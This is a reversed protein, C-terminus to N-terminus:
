QGILYNSTLCVGLQAGVLFMCLALLLAGLFAVRIPVWPCMFAIVVVSWFSGVWVMTFHALTVLSVVASFHM